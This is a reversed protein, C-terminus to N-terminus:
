EIGNKLGEKLVSESLIQIKILKKTVVKMCFRLCDQAWYIKM